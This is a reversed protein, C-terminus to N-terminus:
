PPPESARKGVAIVSQRSHPGTSLQPSPRTASSDELPQKPGLDAQVGTQRSEPESRCLPKDQPDGMVTLSLIHLVYSLAIFFLGALIFARDIKWAATSQAETLEAARKTAGRLAAEPKKPKLWEVIRRSNLDRLAPLALLFTGLIGTGDIALDVYRM